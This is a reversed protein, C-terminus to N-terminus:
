AAPGEDAVFRELADRLAGKAEPYRDLVDFLVRSFAAFEPNDRLREAAPRDDKRAKAMIDSQAKLNNRLQQVLLAITRDDKVKVAREYAELASRHISQLEALLGAQPDGPPLVVPALELEAPPPPAVADSKPPKAKCRSRHDQITSRPLGFALAISRGSEGAGLRADIEDRKPYSCVRCSGAAPM